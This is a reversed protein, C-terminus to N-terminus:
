RRTTRAPHKFTRAILAFNVRRKAQTTMTKCHGDHCYQSGVPIKQMRNLESNSITSDCSKGM